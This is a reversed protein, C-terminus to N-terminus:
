EDRALEFHAVPWLRASRDIISLSRCDLDLVESREFFVMVVRGTTLELKAFDRCADDRAIVRTADPELRPTPFVQRNYGDIGQIGALLMKHRGLNELSVELQDERWKATAILPGKGSQLGVAAFTWDILKGIGGEVAMHVAALLAGILCAIITATDM